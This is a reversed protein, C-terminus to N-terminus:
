RARSKCGGGAVIASPQGSARHARTVAVPLLDPAIFEGVQEVASAKFAVHIASVTDSVHFYLAPSSPKKFLVVRLSQTKGVL